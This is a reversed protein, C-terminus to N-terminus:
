RQNTAEQTSRCFGTHPFPNDTWTSREHRCRDVERAQKRELTVAVRQGALEVGVRADELGFDIREPVALPHEDAVLAFEVGGPLEESGGDPPERQEDHATDVSRDSGQVVHAAVATEDDAVLGRARDITPDDTGIMLPCIFKIAGEGPSTLHRIVVGRVQTEAGGVAYGDPTQDVGADGLHRRVDISQSRHDLGIEGREIESPGDDGV